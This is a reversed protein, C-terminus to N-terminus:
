HSYSSAYRTSTGRARTSRWKTGKEGRWVVVSRQTPQISKDTNFQSVSSAVHNPRNFVTAITSEIEPTSIRFGLADFLDMGLLNNGSRVVHFPFSTLEQSRFNVNLRVTGLVNIPSGTYTSLKVNSPEYRPSRRLSNVFSSNLLSIKAGSDVLLDVTRGSIRCRVYKNIDETQKSITSVISVNAQNYDRDAQKTSWCVSHFHGIKWLRQM